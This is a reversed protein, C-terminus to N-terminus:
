QPPQIPNPPEWLDLYEDGNNHVWHLVTEMPHFFLQRVRALEYIDPRRNHRSLRVSVRLRNWGDISDVRVTITRAEMHRGGGVRIDFTGPHEDGRNGRGKGFTRRHAELKALDIM